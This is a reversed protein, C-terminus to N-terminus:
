RLVNSMQMWSSWFNLKRNAFVPCVARVAFLVKCGKLPHWMSKTSDAGSVAHASAFFVLGIDFLILSCHTKQVPLAVHLACKHADFEQVFIWSISIFAVNLYFLQGIYLGAKKNPDSITVYAQCM